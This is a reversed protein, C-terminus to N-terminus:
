QIYLQVLDIPTAEDILSQDECIRFEWTTPEPLEKCFWPLNPPNCCTGELGDCGQEDWLPDNPYLVHSWSGSGVGSECYYQIAPKNRPLFNECIAPM